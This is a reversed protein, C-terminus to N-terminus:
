TVGGGGRGRDRGSRQQSPSGQARRQRHPPATRLIPPACIIPPPPAFNHAAHPHPAASPTYPYQQLSPSLPLNSDLAAVSSLLSNATSVVLARLTNRDHESAAQVRLLEEQHRQAQEERARRAKSEASEVERRKEAELEELAEHLEAVLDDKDKVEGELDVAKREMVRVQEKYAVVQSEYTNRLTDSDREQQLSLSALKAEWSGESEQVKSRWHSAVAEEAKVLQERVSALDSELTEVLSQLREAEAVLGEEKTAAAAAASRLAEWEDESASARASSLERAELLADNLEQTRKQLTQQAQEAHKIALLHEAQAEQNSQHLAAVEVGLREVEAQLALQAEEADRAEGRLREVENNLRQETGNAMELQTRLRKGEEQLEELHASLRQRESLASSEAQELRQQLQHEEETLASLATSHQAELEAVRRLARAGQEQLDKNTKLAEEQQTAFSEQLAALREELACKEGEARELQRQLDETVTKLHEASESKIKDIKAHLEQEKHAAETERQKEFERHQLLLAGTLEHDKSEQIWMQDFHDREKEAEALKEELSAIRKHVDVVYDPDDM